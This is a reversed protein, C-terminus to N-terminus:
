SSTASASTDASVGSASAAIAAPAVTALDGRDLCRALWARWGDQTASAQGFRAMQELGPWIRGAKAASDVDAADLFLDSIVVVLERVPAITATRRSLLRESRGRARERYRAPTVVAIVPPITSGIFKVSSPAERALRM